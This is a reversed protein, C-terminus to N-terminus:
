PSSGNSGTWRGGIVHVAAKKGNKTGQLGFGDVVDNTFTVQAGEAAHYVAKQTIGSPFRLSSNTVDVIGGLVEVCAVNVSAGCSLTDDAFTYPGREVQQTRQRRILIASGVKDSTMTCREVTINKTRQGASSGINVFFYAGGTAECGDITVDKQGENWQDAEFDFIDFGPHKVIVDTVMAGKVSVFAIGMRGVQKMTVDRITVGEPVAVIPGSHHNASSRLPLLTVGDGFTNTITVGRVTANQTGEIEIGAAFELDAHYGGPNAGQIHLAELTLDSGGAATIVADGDAPDTAKDVFTAGYITLGKPFNLSVGGNVLYCSHAPAVVTQGAPLQNLWQTLPRAVDVSCDAAITAPPSVTPGTPAPVPTRGGALSGAPGAVTTPTSTPPATTSTTTAHRDPTTTSVSRSVPTAACGAAAVAALLTLLVGAGRLRVAGIRVGRPNRRAM